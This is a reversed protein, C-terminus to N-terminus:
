PSIVCAVFVITIWGPFKPGKWYISIELEERSKFGRDRLWNGLIRKLSGIVEADKLGQVNGAAQISSVAKSINIEKGSYILLGDSRKFYDTLLLDLEEAKLKERTEKIRVAM